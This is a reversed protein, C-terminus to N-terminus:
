RPRSMGPASARRFVRAFTEDPVSIAAEMTRLCSPDVGARAAGRLTKRLGEPAPVCALTALPDDVRAAAMLRSAVSQSLKLTDQIARQERKGSDALRELLVAIATRLTTGVDIAAAQLRAVREPGTSVDSYHM